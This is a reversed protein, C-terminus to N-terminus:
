SRMGAAVRGLAFLRRTWGKLFEQSKPRRAVIRLLLQMREELCRDIADPGAGHAAALTRFGIEGDQAIGGLGRQLLLVAAEPGHLVASDFAFLALGAPLESGHVVAWYKDVYFQEVTAPHAALANMDEADVDGDGDLDFDLRGDHDADLEAVVRLSVGCYTPGGPDNPNDVYRGERSVLWSLVAAPLRM